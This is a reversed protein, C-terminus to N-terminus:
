RLRRPHHRGPQRPGHRLLPLVPGPHLRPGERSYRCPEGVFFGNNLINHHSLTAGKPFGTTGSTYQINIPDDFQLERERRHLEDESLRRADHKLADWEDDIVLAQQAGPLAGPGRALM